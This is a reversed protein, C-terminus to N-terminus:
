EKKEKSVIKVSSSASVDLPEDKLSIKILTSITAKATLDVKPHAFQMVEFPAIYWEIFTTQGPAVKTFNKLLAREGLNVKLNTTKQTLTDTLKISPGTQQLYETPIGIETSSENKITVIIPIDEGTFECTPNDVCTLTISIPSNNMIKSHTNICGNLLLSCALVISLRM